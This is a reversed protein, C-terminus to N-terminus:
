STGMDIVASSVTQNVPGTVKVSREVLAVSLKHKTCERVEFRVDNKVIRYLVEQM